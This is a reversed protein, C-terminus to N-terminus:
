SIVMAPVRARRLMLSRLKQVPIEILYLSATCLVMTIFLSAVFPGLTAAGRTPDIEGFHREWLFFVFGQFMYMSYSIRGFFVPVSRGLWALMPSKRESILRSLLRYTFYNVCTITCSLAIPGDALRSCHFDSSLCVFAPHRKLQAGLPDNPNHTDSQEDLVMPLGINSGSLTRRVSLVYINYCYKGEVYANHTTPPNFNDGLHLRRLVPSANADSARM